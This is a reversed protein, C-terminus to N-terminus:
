SLDHVRYTVTVDLTTDNSANGTFNSGINDLVLAQNVGSAKAVIADIKPLANTLTDASQDIFGTCEIAQSVQAGSDDTYKVALNDGSEALVESGYDLDLVASIFENLKNAGPAAVLEKQTTALAKIEAATLTVTVQQLVTEDLETYDVSDAPLTAGQQDFNCSVEDGVNVYVPHQGDALNTDVFKCGKAFGAEADSPVTTGLAETVNGSADKNLVTVETSGPTETNGIKQLQKVAVKERTFFKTM